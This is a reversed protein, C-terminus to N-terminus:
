LCRRRNGLLGVHHAPNRIPMGSHQPACLVEAELRTCAGGLSRSARVRQGADIANRSPRSGNRACPRRRCPRDDLRRTEGVASIVRGARSASPRAGRGQQVRRAARGGREEREGGRTKTKKRTTKKTPTPKRTDESQKPIERRKKIGTEKAENKEKRSKERSLSPRDAGGPPDDPRPALGM